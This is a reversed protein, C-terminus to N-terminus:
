VLITLANNIDPRQELACIHGVYQTDADFTDVFEDTSFLQRADLNGLAVAPDDAFLVVMATSMPFM